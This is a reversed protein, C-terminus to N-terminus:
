SRNNIIAIIKIDVDNISTIIEWGTGEILDKATKITYERRHDRDKYYFMGLDKKVLYMWHDDYRPLRIIVKQTIKKLKRLLERPESLHELVHSLIVVDYNKDPLEKTIDLVFFNINKFINENRCKQILIHNLDIADIKVQKKALEQIYSLSAGCGVDLIEEGSNINDIIFKYHDVWLFHKPHKGNYYKVSLENIYEEFLDLFFFARKLGLVLKKKSKSKGNFILSFFIRKM